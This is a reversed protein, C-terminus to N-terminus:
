IKFKKNLLLFNLKIFLRIFIFFFFCFIQNDIFFYIANWIKVTSDDLGSELLGKSSFTVSRVLDSHGTLTKICEGTTVDWIKVTRDYSGSALLDNSNFSV